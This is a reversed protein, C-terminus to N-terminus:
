ENPASPAQTMQTMSPAALPPRIATAINTAGGGIANAIANFIRIATYFLLLAAGGIVPTTAWALLGCGLFLSTMLVDTLVVIVFGVLYDVAYKPFTELAKALQVLLSDSPQPAM